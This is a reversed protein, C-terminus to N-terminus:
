RFIVGPIFCDSRVPYPEVESLLSVCVFHLDVSGVQLSFSLASAAVGAISVDCPLFQGFLYTFKQGNTDM